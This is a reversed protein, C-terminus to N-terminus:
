IFIWFSNRQMRNFMAIGDANFVRSAMPVMELRQSAACLFEDWSWHHQIFLATFYLCM